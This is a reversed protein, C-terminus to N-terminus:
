PEVTTRFFLKPQDPKISYELWGGRPSSKGEHDLWNKGNLDGTREMQVSGFTPTTKITLFGPTSSSPYISLTIARSLFFQVPASTRSLGGTDTAVVTLVSAGDPINPNVLSFPASTATGILKTSGTYDQNFYEVKAIGGDTDVAQVKLAFAGPLFIVQGPTPATVSV